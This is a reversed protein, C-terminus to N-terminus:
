KKIFTNYSKWLQTFKSILSEISKSLINSYDSHVITISNDDYKISKINAFSHFCEFYLVQYLSKRINPFSIKFIDNQLDKIQIRKNEICEKIYLLKSLITRLVYDMFKDNNFTDELIFSIKYDKPKSLMCSQEDIHSLIVYDYNKINLINPDSKYIDENIQIIIKDEIDSYKVNKNEGKALKGSKIANLIDSTKCIINKITLKENMLKINIYDIPYYTFNSTLSNSADEYGYGKVIKINKINLYESKPLRAIRVGKHIYKSHEGEMASSKVYNNNSNNVFEIKFTADDPVDQHIPILNIRDRIQDPIIYEYNWEVDLEDIDLKKVLLENTSVVRIYNAISSNINNIEYTLRFTREKPLLELLKDKKEKTNLLPHNLNPKIEDVEYKSFIPNSM